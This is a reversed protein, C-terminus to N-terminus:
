VEVADIERENLRKDFRLLLRTQRHAAGPEMTQAPQIQPLISFGFSDRHLARFTRLIQDTDAKGFLEWLTQKVM